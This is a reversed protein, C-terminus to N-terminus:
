GVGPDVEGDPTVDPLAGTGATADPNTQEPRAHPGAAPQGPAPAAAGGTPGGRGEIEAQGREDFSVGDEGSNPKTAM